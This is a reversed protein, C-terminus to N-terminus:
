KVWGWVLTKSVHISFLSTCYVSWRKGFSTSDHRTATHSCGPRFNEQWKRWWRWRKEGWRHKKLGRAASSCPVTRSRVPSRPRAPSGHPRYLWGSWDSRRSSTRPYASRGTPIRGEWSHRPEWGVAVSIWLSRPLQSSDFPSSFALLPLLSPPSHLWPITWLLNMKVKLELTMRVSLCKKTLYLEPSSPLM